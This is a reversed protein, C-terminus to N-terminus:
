SSDIREVALRAALPVFQLKRAEALLSSIADAAFKSRRPRDGSNRDALRALLVALARFIQALRMADARGDSPCVATMAQSAPVRAPVDRVMAMGTVFERAVAEARTLIALVLRRVFSPAACAREALCAFSLLLAVIGKLMRRDEEETVWSWDM